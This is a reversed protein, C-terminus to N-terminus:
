RSRSPLGTSSLRRTITVPSWIMSAAEVMSWADAFGPAMPKEVLVHRERELAMAVPARRLFEPTAVTIVDVEAGEILAQWDDYVQVGELHLQGVLGEARARTRSWLAAVEVDPLQSFATAHGRGATGAGLIGVRVRKTM